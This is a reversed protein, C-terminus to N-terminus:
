TAPSSKSRRRWLGFAALALATGAATAAPEPVATVGFAFTDSATVEGDNKHSGDWRFTLYYVGPTTFGFNYHDHGGVTQFFGDAGTIGDSTAMKVEPGFVGNQWLSFHGGAPGSIGTLSLKLSNWDAPDLEESAIGLFPKGSTNNQPLFWINNGAATGLFDWQAGGPRAIPPDAVYALLQSPAFEEEAGLPAGNVVAGSHLHWHPELAGADYAVGIDAHGDTYVDIAHASFATLAVALLGAPVPRCCKLYHM